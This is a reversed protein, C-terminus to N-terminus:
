LQFMLSAFIKNFHADLLYNYVIFHYSVPHIFALSPHPFEPTIAQPLSLDLPMTSNHNMVGFHLGRVSHPPPADRFAASAGTSLM